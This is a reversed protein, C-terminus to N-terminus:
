MANRCTSQRLLAPAGSVFVAANVVRAVLPTKKSQRHFEVTKLVEGSARRKRRELALRLGVDAALLRRRSPAASGHRLELPV